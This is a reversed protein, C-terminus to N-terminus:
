IALGSGLEEPHIINENQGIDARVEYGEESSIM